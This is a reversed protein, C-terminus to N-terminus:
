IFVFPLRPDQYLRPDIKGTLLIHLLEEALYMTVTVHLLDFLM